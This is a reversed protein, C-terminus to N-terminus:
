VWKESPPIDRGSTLRSLQPSRQVSPISAAGSPPIPPLSKMTDRQRRQNKSSIRSTNRLLWSPSLLDGRPSVSQSPTRAMNPHIPLITIDNLPSKPSEPLLFVREAVQPSGYPSDVSNLFRPMSPGTPSEVLGSSHPLNSLRMGIQVTASSQDSYDRKHSCAFLPRPPEIDDDGQSFTTSVSQRVMQSAHTPFISYNTRNPNEHQMPEIQTPPTIPVASPPPSQLGNAQKMQSSQPGVVAAPTAPEFSKVAKKERDNLLTQTDWTHVSVPSTIHDYIDLDTVRAKSQSKKRGYNEAAQIMTWNANSRLLVRLIAPVIGTINLAVEAVKSVRIADGLMILQTYYPIIMSQNTNLM